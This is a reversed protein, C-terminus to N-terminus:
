GVHTPGEAMLAILGASIEAHTSNGNYAAVSASLSLANHEQKHLAMSVEGENLPQYSILESNLDEKLLACMIRAKRHQTMKSIGHVQLLDSGCGM